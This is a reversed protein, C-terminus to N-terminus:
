LKDKLFRIVQRYDLMLDELVASNNGGIAKTTDIPGDYYEEAYKQAFNPDDAAELALNLIMPILSQRNIPTEPPIRSRVYAVMDGKVSM